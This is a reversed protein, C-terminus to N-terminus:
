ILNIGINLKKSNINRKKRQKFKKGQEVQRQFYRIGQEIENKQGCEVGGEENQNMTFSFM